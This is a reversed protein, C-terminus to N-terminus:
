CIKTVLDTMYIVLLMQHNFKLSDFLKTTSHFTLFTNSFTYNERHNSDTPFFTKNTKINEKLSDYILQM